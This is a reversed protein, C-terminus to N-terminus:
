LWYPKYKEKRMMLLDYTSLFPVPHKDNNVTWWGRTNLLQDWDYGLKKLDEYLELPTCLLDDLYRMHLHMQALESTINIARRLKPDNDIKSRVTTRSLKVDPLIDLAYHQLSGSIGFRDMGKIFHFESLTPLVGETQSIIIEVINGSAGSKSRLQRLSVVNLDMDMMRNDNPDKPYEPGRTSQNLLPTANYAHYLSSSLFFYKDSVGKIKDGNKLHQLKKTPASPMPGTAISTDKGQQATTLVYHNSSALRNPIDMLFQTKAAGLKMHLTNAGSEGIENEEQMKAASATEFESFSDIESFTPVIIKLLKGDRDVFPTEVMLQKANDKKSKMFDKLKEYWENGLYVTKDSVVWTGDELINRDKFSDFRKTFNYLRELHINIETDYTSMSTSTVSAIKDAASLMQYHLITSKFSNGIGAIGSFMGLGGNLIHEGHLGKIFTGNPIDFMCGINILPKIAPVQQFQQKILNDLM